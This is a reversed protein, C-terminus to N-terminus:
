GPPIFEPVELGDDDAAVEPRDAVIAVREATLAATARGPAGAGARDFADGGARDPNAPESGGVGAQYPESQGARPTEGM